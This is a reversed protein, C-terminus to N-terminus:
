EGPPLSALFEQGILVAAYDDVPGPPLLMGRPVLRRWGRPPNDLFYLERARLTTNTEPFLSVTLGRQRLESAVQEGGTGEGVVVRPAALCAALEAARAVVQGRAVAERVLVQGAADLVALGCKERGPDVALVTASGPSM